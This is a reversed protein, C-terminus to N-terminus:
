SQKESNSFLEKTGLVERINQTLSPQSYRLTDNHGLYSHGESQQPLTGQFYLIVQMELM